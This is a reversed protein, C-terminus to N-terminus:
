QEKPTNKRYYDLLRETTAEWAFEEVLSDEEPINELAFSLKERFEQPTRYALCNKFRLFYDNSPDDPLLVFKRQVLALVTTTCLTDSRSANFFIKYDKLDEAPKVSLGKLFLHVGKKKAYKEINKQDIGTGFVDIERQESQSLLDILEKFGKAWILKGIFYLSKSYSIPEHRNFFESQAGNVNLFSSRPLTLLSKNIKIVDDCHRNILWRNYTNLLMAFFRRGFSHHRVYYDYNTLLIGTVRSAQIRYRNFPHLWNLHEPEELILWDCPTIIQALSRVPFISGAKLLYHGPYFLIQLTACDPTPLFARIHIEQEEPTDFIYDSDFLKKQQTLPIWPVYLVVEIKKKALHYAQMLPLIATGTRWPLAATTIINITKLM